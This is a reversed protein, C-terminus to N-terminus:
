VLGLRKLKSHKLQVNPIAANGTEALDKVAREVMERHIGIEQELFSRLERSGQVTRDPVAGGGSGPCYIVSYKGEVSGRPDNTRIIDISGTYLYADEVFNGEISANVLRYDEHGLNEM